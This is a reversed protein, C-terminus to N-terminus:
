ADCPPSASQVALSSQAPKDDVEEKGKKELRLEKLRATKSRVAQREANVREKASDEAAQAKRIREQTRGHRAANMRDGFMKKEKNAFAPVRIPPM